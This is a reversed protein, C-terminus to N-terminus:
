GYLGAMSLRRAAPMALTTAEPFLKAPLAMEEGAHTDLATLTPAVVLVFSTDIKEFTAGNMDSNAGPSAIVEDTGPVPNLSNLPVEIAAGCTAPAHAIMLCAAGAALTLETSAASREVPRGIASVRQHPAPVVTGRMLM